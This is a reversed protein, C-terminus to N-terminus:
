HIAANVTTPLVAAILGYQQWGSGITIPGEFHAQAAAGTVSAGAAAASRLSSPPSAATGSTGAMPAVQGGLTRSRSLASVAGPAGSGSAGGAPAGLSSAAGLSSPTSWSSPASGGNQGLQGWSPTAASSPASGWNPATANRTPFTAPMASAAPTASAISSQSSPGPTAAGASQGALYDDHKYWLVTGDSKVALIVGNGGAILTRLGTWGTAVKLPGQWHPQPRAPVKQDLMRAASSGKSASVPAASGQPAPAQLSDGTLYDLHRYWLLTGDPQLAYIVGSGASFVASFQGWGSGVTKPASLASPGGGASLNDHRYWTLTGDAGIAYIIGDGGGFVSRYNGFNSALQVPGAPAAAMNNFGYWDLVGKQDVTYFANGGGPLLARLGSWGKTVPQPAGLSRSGVASDYFVTGHADVSYVSISPTTSTGGFGAGPPASPPQASAVSMSGTRVMSDVIQEMKAVENLGYHQQIQALEAIPPLAGQDIQCM